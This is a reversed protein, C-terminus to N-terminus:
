NESCFYRSDQLKGIGHKKYDRAQAANHNARSDKEPEPDRKWAVTINRHQESLIKKMSENWRANENHKAPRQADAKKAPQSQASNVLSRVFGKQHFNDACQIGPFVESPKRTFEIERSEHEAGQKPSQPGNHLLPVQPWTELICVDDKLLMHGYVAIEDLSSVTEYPNEDPRERNQAQYASDKTNGV